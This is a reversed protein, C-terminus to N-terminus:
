DALAQAFEEGKKALTASAALLTNTTADAEAMDASYENVKDASELIEKSKSGTTTKCWNAFKDYTKAEKNGDNLVDKRIGNLLVVVKEIASPGKAAACTLLLVCM